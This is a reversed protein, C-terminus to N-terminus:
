EEDKCLRYGLELLDRIPKLSGPQGQLQACNQIAKAVAGFKSPDDLEFKGVAMSYIIKAHFNLRSGHLKDGDNRDSQQDQKANLLVIPDRYKERLMRRFRLELVFGVNKAWTFFDGLDVNLDQNDPDLGLGNAIAEYQDEFFYLMLDQENSHAYHRFLADYTVKRPDLGISLITLEALSCRNFARWYTVDVEHARVHWGSIFWAPQKRRLNEIRSVFEFSAGLLDNLRFRGNNGKRLFDQNLDEISFLELHKRLEDCLLVRQEEFHEAIEPFSPGISARVVPEKYHALEGLANSIVKSIVENKSDTM